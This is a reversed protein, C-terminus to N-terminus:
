VWNLTPADELSAKEGEPVQKHRDAKPKTGCLQAQWPVHRSERSVISLNTGCTEQGKPRPAPCSQVAKLDTKTAPKVYPM